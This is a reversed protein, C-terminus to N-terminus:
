QVSELQDGCHKCVRVREGTALTEHGVRTVRDCHPCVIMVNSIDIPQPVDMIGGQQIAPMRSSQNLRQRPKQHKKAINLGSILVSLPRVSAARWGTRTKQRGMPNRLIKDVKGRKGADKGTLVVVTDGARIEPTKNSPANQAAPM